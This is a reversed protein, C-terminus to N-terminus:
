LVDTKKCSQCEKQVPSLKKELEQALKRTEDISDLTSLHTEITDSALHVLETTMTRAKYLSSDDPLMLVKRQRQKTRVEQHYAYSYKRPSKRETGDPTIDRRPEYYKPKRPPTEMYKHTYSDVGNVDHATNFQQKLDKQLQKTEILTDTELSSYKSDGKVSESAMFSDVEEYNLESPRESYKRDSKQVRLQKLKRSDKMSRQIAKMWDKKMKKNECGFIFKKEGCTIGFSNALKTYETVNDELMTRGDDLFITQKFTLKEDKGQKKVEAVIIIDNFLLVKRKMTKFRSSNAQRILVNERMLMRRTNRKLCPPPNIFRNSLDATTIDM